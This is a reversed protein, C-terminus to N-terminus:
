SDDLNDVDMPHGDHSYLGWGSEGERWQPKMAEEEADMLEQFYLSQQREEDSVVGGGRNALLLVFLFILAPIFALYLLGLALVLRVAWKLTAALWRPVGAAVLRRVIASELRVCPRLCRGVARGTRAALRKSANDM